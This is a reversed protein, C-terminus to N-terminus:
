SFSLSLSLFDSSSGIEDIPLTFGIPKDGVTEPCDM